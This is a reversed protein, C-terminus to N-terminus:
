TKDRYGYVSNWFVLQVVVDLLEL